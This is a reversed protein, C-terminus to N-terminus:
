RHRQLSSSDFTILIPSPQTAQSQTSLLISSSSAPPYSSRKHAINLESMEPVAELPLRTLTKRIDIEGNSHITDNDVTIPQFLSTISAEDSMTSSVNFTRTSPTFTQSNETSLSPRSLTTLPNSNSVISDRCRPLTTVKALSISSEAISTCPSSSRVPRIPPDLALRHRPIYMPSPQLENSKLLSAHYRDHHIHSCDDPRCLNLSSSIMM